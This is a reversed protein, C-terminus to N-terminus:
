LSIYKWCNNWYTKWREQELISLVCTFRDKFYLRAPWTVSGFFSLKCSHWFVVSGDAKDAMRTHDHQLDDKVPKLWLCFLDNCSLLCTESCWLVFIWDWSGRRSIGTADTSDRCTKLSKLYQYAKSLTHCSTKHAVILFYFMLALMMRAMSLRYSLAWLATRNLPLVPSHDLVVTPTRFPHRSEGVRKLM